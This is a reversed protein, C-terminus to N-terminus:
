KVNFRRFLGEGDNGVSSDVKQKRAEEVARNIEAIRQRAEAKAPNLREKVRETEGKVGKGQHLLQNQRVVCKRM